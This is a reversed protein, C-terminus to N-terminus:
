RIVNGVVIVVLINNHYQWIDGPLFTDRASLWPVGIFLDHIMGFDSPPKRGRM